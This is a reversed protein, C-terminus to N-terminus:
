GYHKALDEKRVYEQGATEYFEAEDEDLAVAKGDNRAARILEEEDVEEVEETEAMQKPAASGEDVLSITRRLTDVGEEEALERLQERKAPAFKQDREIAEDLLQDIENETHQEKLNELATETARLDKRYQESQEALEAQEEAAAMIAEETAEEAGVIEALQEAQDEEFMTNNDNTTTSFSFQEFVQDRTMVGDVFATGEADSGMLVSADAMNERVFEEELGRNKAVVRIFESHLQDVQKQYKAVTEDDIPEASHGKGKLPTSRVIRVDLGKEEYQEARSVIMTYVGISGVGGNPSVLLKDAASGIYYAASYMGGSAFSVTETEMGRIRNALNTLGTGAGGPSDFDFVVRNVKESDDLRRVAESLMETSVGGSMMTMLNARPFIKGHVKMVATGNEDVSFMKDIQDEGDGSEQLQGKADVITGLELQRIVDSMERLSEERMLWHTGNLEAIINSYNKM